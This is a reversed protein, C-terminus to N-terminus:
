KTDIKESPQPTFYRAYGEHVRKDPDLEYVVGLRPSRQSEAVVTDVRDYRAGANVTLAQTPKWEDQLYLGFLHGRLRSDDAITLPM